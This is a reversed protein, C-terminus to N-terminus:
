ARVHDVLTFLDHVGATELRECFDIVPYLLKREDAVSRLLCVIQEASDEGGKLNSWKRGGMNRELFMGNEFLVYERGYGVNWRLFLVDEVLAGNQCHPLPGIQRGFEVSLHTGTYQLTEAGVGLCDVSSTVIGFLESPKM